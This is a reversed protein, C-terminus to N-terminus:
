LIKNQVVDSYPNIKTSSLQPPTINMQRVEKKWMEFVNVQLKHPFADILEEKTINPNKSRLLAIEKVAYQKFTTIQM